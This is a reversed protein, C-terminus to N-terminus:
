FDDGRLVSKIYKSVDHSKELEPLCLGALSCSKCKPTKRVKPTYGKKYLCHMDACLKKVENRLEATFAVPTRHKTEGYYLFGNPIETLYMEELCIAQACLQVEDEHGAKPAGKKYEVPVINWCGDYKKLTIGGPSECFEVADCQGSIGLSASSIRLGRATIVGGRKEFVTEDHVRKHMLEGVTTHYNDQWQQEIEIIAWQRPCFCYHQIGSLQLYDDENYM